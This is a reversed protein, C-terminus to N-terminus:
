LAAIRFFVAPAQDGDTYANGWNDFSTAGTFPTPHEGYSGYNWSYYLYQAIYTNTPDNAPNAVGLHWPETWTTKIEQNYKLLMSLWYVRNGPLVKPLDYGSRWGSSIEKNGSTSTDIEESQVLLAGPLTRTHQSNYIGVTVRGGTVGTQVVFGM